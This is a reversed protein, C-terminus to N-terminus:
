QAPVERTVLAVRARGVRLVWVTHHADGHGRLARQWTDPDCAAGRTRVTPVGGGHERIWAAVTRERAPLEAVIEHVELWPSPAMREATLIGLGEAPEHAAGAVRHVLRARELAPHPAAIMGLWRGDPVCPPPAPTGSLTAGTRVDTATNAGAHRALVGSWVVQQVLAGADAIFEVEDEASRETPTLDMGPGLKVALGAAHRTAARLVSLPPRLDEAHLLRRGQSRREPDAHVCAGDAPHAEAAGCAVPVGANHEAMWARAPDADVGTTPAVRALEMLDGGIGCCLDVVSASGAFRRAKWAAVRPASAMEVGARDLWLTSAREGFKARARLRALHVEIGAAVIPAAWARRLREILSAPPEDELHAIQALLATGAPSALARLTEVTLPGATGPPRPSAM